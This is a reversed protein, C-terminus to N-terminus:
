KWDHQPGGEQPPSLIEQIRRGIEEPSWFAGSATVPETMLMKYTFLQRGRVGFMQGTIEAAADGALWAVIPSNHAPDMEPDDTFTPGLDETMRTLAVPALGNVTIGHKKFELAAVRMLGYVGAKAAGYNGQGFNGILGSFSSTVVIRGGGGQEVMRRAAAQLCHYAGYLHVKLVADWQADEMKLLTKDRLIGANAVMVDIRGFADVAAQVVARAGEGTSIDSGEAVAEGGAKKIEEVVEHAPGVGAGTGDRSGGLDNVVVKAGQKALLLAHSRGIGRGAGTVVAVKGSLTGM